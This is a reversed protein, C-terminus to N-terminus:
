KKKVAKKVVKVVWAENVDPTTPDDPIFHGDENRARVKKTEVKLPQALISDLVNSKTWFGDRSVGAVEVGMHDYVITGKITFGAAELAKEYGVISM